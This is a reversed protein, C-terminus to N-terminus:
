RLRGRAAAGPSREPRQALHGNGPRASKDPLSVPSFGHLQLRVSLARGKRKNEQAYSFRAEYRDGRRSVEMTGDSLTTADEHQPQEAPRLRLTDATATGAWRTVGIDGRKNRAMAFEATADGADSVDTVSFSINLTERHPQGFGSDLFTYVKCSVAYTSSFHWTRVWDRRRQLEQARSERERQEESQRNLAALREQEEAQQQTRRREEASRREQDELRARETALRQREDELRKRDEDMRQREDQTPAPPQLGGVMTPPRNTVPPTPAEVFHFAGTFSSSVWPRQRNRTKEIVGRAVRKFVEEITLGRQPLAKLLEATYVGNTGPAGDAAVDGPDTAYAIFTGPPGSIQALGRSTSRWSRAFPNDRCADLVVINLRNRAADMEKLVADIDLTETAVYRESTLRSAIPVLYNRGGVQLGHGSYYFLGVGGEGMQEGFEAVARRMGIFDLNEHSLVEFGVARLTRAVARADNVPNSLRGEAYAGNGIVL